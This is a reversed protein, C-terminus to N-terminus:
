KQYYLNVHIFFWMVLFVDGAFLAWPWFSAGCYVGYGLTVFPSLMLIVIVFMLLATMFSEYINSM